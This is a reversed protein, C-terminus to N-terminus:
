SRRARRAVNVAPLSAIYTDLDGGVVRSAAGVKRLTILDAAALEYLHSRSVSLRRCAEAVTLLEFREQHQHPHM